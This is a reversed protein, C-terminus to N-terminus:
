KNLLVVRNTDKPQISVITTDFDAIREQGSIKFNYNDKITTLDVPLQAPLQSEIISSDVVVSKTSPWVCTLVSEDKLIERAEGNLSYLRESIKGGQNLHAYDMSELKDDSIYVFNGYYSKDQMATTMSNLLYVADSETRSVLDTLQQPLQEASESDQLTATAVVPFVSVPLLALSTSLLLKRVNM